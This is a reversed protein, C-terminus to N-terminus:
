DGKDVGESLGGKDVGESLRRLHIAAINGLHICIVFVHLAVKLHQSDGFGPESGIGDADYLLVVDVCVYKVGDKALLTSPSILLTVGRERYGDHHLVDGGQLRKVQGDV